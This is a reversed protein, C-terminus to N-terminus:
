KIITISPNLGKNILDDIGKAVNLNWSCDALKFDYVSLKEILKRHHYEVQENTALDADFCIAIIKVGYEKLYDIACKGFEDKEFLKSYTSVGQLAIAAANRKTAIVMGKKEGETIFCIPTNKTEPLYISYGGGCSVGNKASGSSLFIYKPPKKGEDKYREIDSKSYVPRVRLQPIRGHFDYVPFIIGGPGFITWKGKENVGFGPVGKLEFGKKILEACIAVRLKNVSKMEGSYVTYDKPPLSVISYKKIMEDNWGESFLYARSEPELKLMSILAKYVKDIYETPAKFNEQPEKVAPIIIPPDVRKFQGKKFAFMEHQEITEFIDTQECEKFCFMGNVVDGKKYGLVKSFHCFLYSRGTTNINSWACYSDAGCVPCPNRKTVNIYNSM